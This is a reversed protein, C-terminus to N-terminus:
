SLRDAGAAQLPATHRGPMYLERIARLYAASSRRTAVLRNAAAVLGDGAGPTTRISPPWLAKVAKETPSRALPRCLVCAVNEAPWATAIIAVSETDRREGLSQILVSRGPQTAAKSLAAACARPPPQPPTRRWHAGPANRSNPTRAKSCATLAAVSEAAGIYELQRVIWVRAPQPM